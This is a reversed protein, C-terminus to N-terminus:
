RYIRKRLKLLKEKRHKETKKIQAIKREMLQRFKENKLDDIRLINKRKLNQLKKYEPSARLRKEAERVNKLHIQEAKIVLFALLVMLFTVIIAAAFKYSLKENQPIVTDIADMITNQWFLAIVFGIATIISTVIAGTIDFNEVHKEFKAMM